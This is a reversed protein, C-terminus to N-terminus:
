RVDYIALDGDFPVERAEARVQLLTIDWHPRYGEADETAQDNAKILTKLFHRADEKLKCFRIDIDDGPQWYVAWKM